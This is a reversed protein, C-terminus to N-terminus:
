AADYHVLVVCGKRTTWNPHEGGKPTGLYDGPGYAAGAIVLDGSIVVTHEFSRHEHDPVVAGPECRLLYTDRTWLRKFRIGPAYDRWRGDDFRAEVDPADVGELGAAVRSWLGPPPDGAPMALDLGALFQDAAEDIFWHAGRRRTM